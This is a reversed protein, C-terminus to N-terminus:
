KIRTLFKLIGNGNMPRCVSGATLVLLYIIATESSSVYNM